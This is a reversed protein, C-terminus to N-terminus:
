GIPSKQGCVQYMRHDSIKVTVTLHPSMLEALEDEHLLEVSVARAAGSHHAALAQRSMGHAITLTGGAKLLRTLHAILASPDPFHPFANYVVICDYQLDCPLDFVDCCFFELNDRQFKSKAIRIMEDSIDVATVSAAGRALYDPILVGTGTAVDLVTKGATVQANDLITSLVEENRVMNADWVPAYQNFFSIIQKTDMLNTEERCPM